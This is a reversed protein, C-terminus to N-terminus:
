GDLVVRFEPADRKNRRTLLYIELDDLPWASPGPDDDRGPFGVRLLVSWRLLGSFRPGRPVPGGAYVASYVSRSWPRNGDVFYTQAVPLESSGDSGVLEFTARGTQYVFDHLDGTVVLRLYAPASGLDVAVRQRVVGLNVEILVRSQVSSEPWHALRGVCEASRARAMRLVLPSPTV